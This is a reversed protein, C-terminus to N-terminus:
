EILFNKGTVVLKAASLNGYDGPLLESPLPQRGGVSILFEGSEVM